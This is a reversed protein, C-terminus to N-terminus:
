RKFEVYVRQTGDFNDRVTIRQPSVTFKAERNGPAGSSILDYQTGEVDVELIEDTSELTYQTGNTEGTSPGDIYNQGNVTEWWDSIIEIEPPIPPAVPASTIVGTGKLEITAESFGSVPGNIDMNGIFAKGSIQISDVLDDFTIRIDQAIRRISTQLMWFFSLSADNEVKTLGSASASWEEIRIAYERFLGSNPGTKEIFEPSRTFRIDTACLVPYYVGEYKVELVANKGLIADAM